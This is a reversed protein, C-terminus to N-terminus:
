ANWHGKNYKARSVTYRIHQLCVMKDGTVLFSSTSDGGNYIKSINSTLRTYKLNPEREEEEEESSEVEEEPGNGGEAYTGAETTDISGPPLKDDLDQGPDKGTSVSM